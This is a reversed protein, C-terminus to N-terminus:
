ATAGFLRLADFFPILLFIAGPVLAAVTVPIWVQQARRDIRALLDRHLEARTADVEAEVLQALDPTRHHLSLVSVLRHVADVDSLASWTSLATELGAGRHVAAVVRAIDRRLPSSGRGAIQELAVVPSRGARLLAVLQEGVVPLEHHVAASWRSDRQALAIDPAAAAAAPGGLLVAVGLLPPPALAIVAMAAIAGAILLLAGQRFRFGAADESAHVRALRVTIPSVAGGIHEAWRAV